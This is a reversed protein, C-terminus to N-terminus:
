LNEGAHSVHVMPILAVCALTLGTNETAKSSVSVDALKQVSVDALCAGTWVSGAKYVSGWEM